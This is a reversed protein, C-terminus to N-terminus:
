HQVKPTTKLAPLALALLFALVLLFALIAEIM